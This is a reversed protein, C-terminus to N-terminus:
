PVKKGYPDDFKFQEYGAPTKYGRGVEIIKQRAEYGDTGAVNPNNYNKNKTVLFFWGGSGDVIETAIGNKDFYEKAPELDRKRSYSKIVIMNSGKGTETGSVPSTPQAAQLNEVGIGEAPLLNTTQRKAEKHPSGYIQGLRFFLLLLLILLLGVVVAITYSVTVEIRKEIFVVSKPKKPWDFQKAAKEGGTEVPKQETMRLEKKREVAETQQTPLPQATQRGPTTTQRAKSIAEYLSKQGRKRFM